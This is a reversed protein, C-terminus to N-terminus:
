PLKVQAGVTLRYPDDLGNLQAIETWRSASGLLRAAVATLTAGSRITYSGVAPAAGGAAAAAQSSQGAAAERARQAASGTAVRDAAVYELLTVTVKQQIRYGSRSYIPNADWALGAGGSGDGIVYVLEPHPVVGLVTVLPPNLRPGAPQAMQELALCDEEVSQNGRVGDLILSLQQQFPDIGGWQTLAKRRPRPVLQWGGFGGTPVPPTEGRLARVQLRPSATSLTIYQAALTV